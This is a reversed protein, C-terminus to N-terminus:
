VFRPGKNKVLTEQNGPAFEKITVKLFGQM